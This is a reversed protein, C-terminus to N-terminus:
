GRKEIKDQGGMYPRLVEPIIISGDEQQYNEMVAVLTRGTALGSGNLTHVFHNKGDKDKFRGNMRRAQFDGCNSISAIERYTNQAPVWVEPDYTKMSAFGIDGSCLNMVRYPLKLAELIGCSYNLMNEHAEKSKEPHVIQVMEVKGFQHMRIYGRTDKGASGAEKRFNPTYATFKFPLDGEAVLREQM